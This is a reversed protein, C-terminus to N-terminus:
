VHLWQCLMNGWNELNFVPIRMNKISTVGKIHQNSKMLYEFIYKIMRTKLIYFPKGKLYENLM